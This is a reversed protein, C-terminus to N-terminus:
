FLIPVSTHCSALFFLTITLLFKLSWPPKMSFLILLLLGHRVLRCILKIDWVFFSIMNAVVGNGYLFVQRYFEKKNRLKFLLFLVCRGYLQFIYWMSLRLFLLMSHFFLSHSFIHDWNMLPEKWCKVCEHLGSIFLVGISLIAVMMGGLGIYYKPLKMCRTNILKYQNAPIVIIRLM